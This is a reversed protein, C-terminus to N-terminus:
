SDPDNFDNIYKEIYQVVDKPSNLDLIPKNTYIAAPNDTVFAIVFEDEPLVPKNNEERHLIIKPYNSLKFGEFLTLDLLNQDLNKLLDDLNPETKTDNKETILAWRQNSAVLTQTAGAKRLRFSDKGPIDIDFDHHAHKILGVKLGKVHLQSIVQELLQTKGAGSPAIFGIIPLKFRDSNTNKIKEM